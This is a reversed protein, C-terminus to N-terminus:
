MKSSKEKFTLFFDFVEVTKICFFTQRRLKPTKNKASFMKQIICIKIKEDIINKKSSQCTFQVKSLIM